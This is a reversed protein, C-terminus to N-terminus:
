TTKQVEDQNKNQTIDNLLSDISDTTNTTVKEENNIDRVKERMTKRLNMQRSVLRAYIGNKAVLEEHTGEEAVQGDDIVCIKDANVVTSLRHAVLIVTCKQEAIAQELAAQVLAESEADLSSTAEDLIMLQPKRMLMRALSVRQKQGGSLRTGRQGTDCMRGSPYIIKNSMFVYFFQTHTMGIRSEYKDDFSQIFEDANALTCARKLDASTYRDVGYAVNFEITQGFLETDQSVLAMKDRISYVNYERMDVGNITIEVLKLLTSKGTGSKGVLAVTKGKEITLNIGKLIEKNPEMQYVFRVNEFRIDGDITDLKKGQKNDILEISPNSDLTRFIHKAIFTPKCQMKKNFAKFCCYAG